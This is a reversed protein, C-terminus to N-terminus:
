RAVEEPLGFAEWVLRDLEGEFQSLESAKQASSAALLRPMLHLIDRARSMKPLPFRSVYQSMFRRRGAYLKNHFVADYFKLIFSSNAVALMLMLWSASKGPLLKAWYCDGNVIWGEEVLFFRNTESIDPFALKPLMWDRPRHPVWIEYWQRGSEIVYSRNQLRERHQLLYKQAHPFDGLDVPVRDEATLMYPYLVRKVGTARAPLHWPTAHHHTVLPHLLEAEPREDDRLSEWDDRVFVSDATTKIGVCVRAVDAFTYESHARVTALWSEVSRNTMSWPTRSDAGTLLRGVEVQFCAGSVRAQASFSGDLLELISEAERARPDANASTEYVRIFECDQRIAGANRQAIVIAPLVAAEFLKTDGLDVLRLLNFHELLWERTSRGSQVTLFRNSTLLGLIGGECLALTMAKVFAHYLDVRGTLDFRAALERAVAAGLVQTRVYPPNSIVADFEGTLRVRVDRGSTFLLSMQAKCESQAVVSLFDACHLKVGAAGIGSLVGEAKKLAREDKDFGTLSLRHKWEAPAAAFVAKLLEGEGCAPDLVNIQGALRPQAKLGLLVQRALYAALLPPTYHVGHAKREAKEPAM